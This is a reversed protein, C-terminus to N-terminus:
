CSPELKEKIITYFQILCYLDWTKSFNLVVALYPYMCAYQFFIYFNFCFCLYYHGFLHLRPHISVLYGYKWEFRGEGYVGFLEFIIALYWGSSFCNLPFPHRVVGDEYAVELLPMNSTIQGHTEMFKIISDEGSTFIFM